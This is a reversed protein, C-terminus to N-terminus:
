EGGVLCGQLQDVEADPVDLGFATTLETGAGLAPVLGQIGESHLEGVSEWESWGVSLFVSQDKVCFIQCRGDRGHGLRAPRARLRREVAGEVGPVRRDRVEHSGRGDIANLKQGDLLKAAPQPGVHSVADHEQAVGSVRHRRVESLASALGHLVGRGEDCQQGWQCGGLTRVRFRQRARQAPVVRQASGTTLPDRSLGMQDALKRM